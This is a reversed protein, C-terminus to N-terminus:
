TTARQTDDTITITGTETTFVYGSPDKLQVAYFLVTGIALSDTDSVPGVVDAIGTAPDTAITISGGDSSYAQVAVSDPDDPDNKATWWLSCSTLDYAGGTSDTVTIRRSFTDGRAHSIDAM